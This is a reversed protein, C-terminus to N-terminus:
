HTRTAVKDTNCLLHFLSSVLFHRIMISITKIRIPTAHARIHTYSYTETDSQMHSETEIETQTHSSISGLAEFM